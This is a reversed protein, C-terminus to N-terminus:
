IMSFVTLYTESEFQCGGHDQLQWRVGVGSIGTVLFMVYKAPIRCEVKVLLTEGGFVLTSGSFPGKSLFACRGGGWGGIKPHNSTLKETTYNPPIGFGQTKLGCFFEVM